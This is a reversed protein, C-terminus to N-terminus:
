SFSQLLGYQQFDYQKWGYNNESKGMWKGNNIGGKRRKQEEEMAKRLLKKTNEFTLTELAEDFTLWEVAKIEGQQM